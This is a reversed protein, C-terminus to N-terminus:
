ANRSLLRFHRALSIFHLLTLHNVTFDFWLAFRFLTPRGGIFHKCNM